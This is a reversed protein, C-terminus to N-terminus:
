FINLLDSISQHVESSEQQHSITKVTIYPLGSGVKGHMMLIKIWMM